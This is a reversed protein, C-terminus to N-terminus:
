ASAASNKKESESVLDIKIKAMEMCVAVIAEHLDKPGLNKMNEASFPVGNSDTCFALIAEVEEKELPVFVAAERIMKEQDSAPMLELRGLFDEYSEGMYAPLMKLGLILTNYANLARLSRLGKLELVKM